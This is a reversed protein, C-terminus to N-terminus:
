AKILKGHYYHGKHESKLVEAKWLRWLNDCCQKSTLGTKKAVEGVPYEKGSNKEMFHKITAINSPRKEM